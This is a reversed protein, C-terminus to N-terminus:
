RTAASGVDDFRSSGRMWAQFRLRLGTQKPVLSRGCCFEAVRTFGAMTARSTTEPNFESTDALRDDFPVTFVKAADIGNASAGDLGREPATRNVVYRVKSSAVGRKELAHHRRNALHLSPASPTTVIFVTRAARAVAETADNVVEPLDAIVLDYRSRVFSLLRQYGWASVQRVGWRSVSALVDLAGARLVMADWNEDTLNHSDHLAEIISYAPQRNYLMSIPGAHLDCELMLVRKGALTALIHGAYLATTTAGSGAKAPQFAFIPAQNQGDCSAFAAVIGERLEEVSCSMPLVSYGCWATMPGADGRNVLLCLMASSPHITGITTVLEAAEGQDEVALLVIQPAFSNMLRMTEHLQPYRELARFVSIGASSCLQQIRSATERDTGFVLATLM